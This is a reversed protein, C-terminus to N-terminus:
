DHVSAYTYKLCSSPVPDPGGATSVKRLAPCAYCSTALEVCFFQCDRCPVGAQLYTLFKGPINHTTHRPDLAVAIRM